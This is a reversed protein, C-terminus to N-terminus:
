LHCKLLYQTTKQGDNRAPIPESHTFVSMLQNYALVNLNMKASVGALKRRNFHMAGMWQKLTEFPHCKKALTLKTLQLREM